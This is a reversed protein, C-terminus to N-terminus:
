NSAISAIHAMLNLIQLHEDSGQVLDIDAVSMYEYIKTKQLTSLDDNRIIEQHIQFIINEGSYGENMINQVQKEIHQIDNSWSDILVQMMDHPIIGAMEEIMKPTIPESGQLNYGSQLFTIAKRLDGGSCDILTKLANPELNVGEKACILEIRAELDQIPLSKFRFKACRSTIPEIIRNLINIM